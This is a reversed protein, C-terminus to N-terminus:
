DGISRYDEILKKLWAIRYQYLARKTISSPPIGKKILWGIVFNHGKILDTIHDLLKNVKSSRINGNYSPSSMYVYYCIGKNYYKNSEEELM